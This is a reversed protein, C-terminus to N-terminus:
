TPIIADLFKLVFGNRVKKISGSEDYHKIVFVRQETSSCVLSSKKKPLPPSLILFEWNFIKVNGVSLFAAGYIELM